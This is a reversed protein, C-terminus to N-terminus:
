TEPLGPSMDLDRGARARPNFRYRTICFYNTDSTAGRAPAHISVGQEPGHDDMEERRAGRPRTSQFLSSPPRSTVGEAPRAGRPRTSQFTCAPTSNSERSDDRGARARPNFCDLGRWSCWYGSTAGRAPAHISVYCQTQGRGRKVRRAGRPRTSQFM